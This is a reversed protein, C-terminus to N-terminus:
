GNLNVLEMSELDVRLIQRIYPKPDVDIPLILTVAGIEITQKSPSVPAEDSMPQEIVFQAVM